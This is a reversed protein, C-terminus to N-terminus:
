NLDCRPPFLFVAKKESHSPPWQLTQAPSYSSGIRTKLTKSQRQPSNVPFTCHHISSSWKNCIIWAPQEARSEPLPSTSFPKRFISLPFGASNGFSGGPTPSSGPYIWTIQALCSSSAHRWKNLQSLRCFFLPQRPPPTPPPQFM